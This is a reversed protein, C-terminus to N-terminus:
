IDGFEDDSEQDDEKINIALSARASPTLGFEKLMDKIVQYNKKKVQIAPNEITNTHGKANTYQITAGQERIEQVATVYESVAECYMALATTDINTLLGLRKLEPVIKRWERQAIKDHKLWKPRKIDDANPTLKKEAKKRKEIEEKTLNSKNGEVVHLGISKAKRPM